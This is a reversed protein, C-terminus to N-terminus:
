INNFDNMNFFNMLYILNNRELNKKQIWSNVKKIEIDYKEIEKKRKEILKKIEEIEKNKIEINKRIKGGDIKKKNKEINKTINEKKKEENEKSFYFNLDIFQNISKLTSNLLNSFRSQTKRDEKKVSLSQYKKNKNKTKKTPSKDWAYNVISKPEYYYIDDNENVKTLEDLEYGREREDKADFIKNWLSDLNKVSKKKILQKQNAESIDLHFPSDNKINSKLEYNNRPSNLNININKSSNSFILSKTTINIARIRNILKHEHKRKSKSKSKSKSNNDSTTKIKKLNKQNKDTLKLEDKNNNYIEELLDPINMVEDNYSTIMKTSLLKKNEKEKNFDIRNIKSIINKNNEIKKLTKQESNKRKNQENQERPILQENIINNKEIIINEDNNEKINVKTQNENNSKKDDELQNLKLNQNINLIKNEKDNDKEEDENEENEKKKDNMNMIVEEKNMNEYPIIKNNEENNNDIIINKEGVTDVDINLKSKENLDKELNNDEIEEM